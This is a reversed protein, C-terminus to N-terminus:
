RIPRKAIYFRCAPDGSGICAIEEVRFEHGGSVWHLGETLIGVALHCCPMKTHRGWCVACRENNWIYHDGYEELVVVQDSFRNFIGAFTEAGIKIKMGLPILRLALDAIGIVAEFDQLGYKFTTRGAQMAIGKGGRPGYMEELAQQIGSLEAFEFGLELDDPPYSNVRQKLGAFNLVANVGNKGLVDELGLLYARAMRNSYYYAPADADFHLLPGTGAM